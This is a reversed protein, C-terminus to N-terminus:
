VRNYLRTYITAVTNWDKSFYAHFIWSTITPTVILWVFVVFAIRSMKRTWSIWLKLVGFLFELISLQKPANEAYM